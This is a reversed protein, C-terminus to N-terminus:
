TAQSVSMNWGATSSFVSTSGGWTSSKFAHLTARFPTAGGSSEVNILLDGVRVGLANAHRTVINPHPPGSTPLTSSPFPQAGVATFFGTALIDTSNHTSSFCWLSAGGAAIGLTAYLGGGAGGENMKVLQATSSGTFYAM